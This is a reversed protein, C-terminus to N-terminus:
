GGVPDLQCTLPARIIRWDSLPAVVAGQRSLQRVVDPRLEHRLWAVHTVGWRAVIAQRDCPSTTPAFFRRYDAQRAADSPSLPMPRPFAAVHVGYAPLVLAASDYGLVRADPPLWAAIAQAQAGVPRAPRPYDTLAWPQFLQQAALVIQAACVALAGWGMIRWGTASIQDFPPSTRGDIRDLVLWALMLQLALAIYALFRHAVSIDAVGGIVFAAFIVVLAIVPMRTRPDRWQAPIVPLVVLLPALEAIVFVPHYFFPFNNFTAQGRAAGARGLGLPNFWPWLTTAAVGIALLVVVWARRSLPVDREFVALAGAGMLLFVANLPHTVVAIAVVALLLLADLAPVRAGRLLRTVAAWAIFTLAFVFAAPYYNSHVQSRLPHFGTWILPPLSWGCTLVAFLVAPAWPRAYYARAFGYVGAVFLLSVLMAGTELAIDPGCGTWRALYGLLLSWPTFQRSSAGEAYIPDDLRLGHRIVEAVIARHEWYDTFYLLTTPRFVFFSLACLLLYVGASAAFVRGPTAFTRFRDGM